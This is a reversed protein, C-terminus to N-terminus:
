TVPKEINRIIVCLIEKDITCNTFTIESIKICKIWSIEKSRKKLM